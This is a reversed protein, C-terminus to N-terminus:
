QVPLSRGDPGTAGVVTIEIQADAPTDASYLRGTLEAGESSWRIRLHRTEGPEIGGPVEERIEATGWPVSRGPTVTRARLRLSAIATPLTNTISFDIFAFDGLFPDNGQRELRANMALLTPAPEQKAAIAQTGLAEHSEVSRQDCGAASMIFIASTSLIL